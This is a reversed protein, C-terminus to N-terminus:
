RGVEKGKGGRGEWERQKGERRRGEKSGQSITKDHELRKTASMMPTNYQTHGFNIEASILEKNALCLCQM